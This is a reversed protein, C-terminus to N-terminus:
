HLRTRIPDREIGALIEGLMGTIEQLEAARRANPEQAIYAFLGRAMQCLENLGDQDIRYHTIM